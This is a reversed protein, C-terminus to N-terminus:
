EGDFGSKCYTGWPKAAAALLNPDLEGAATTVNAAELTVKRTQDPLTGDAEPLPPVEIVHFWSPLKMPINQCGADGAQPPLNYDTNDLTSWQTGDPAQTKSFPHTFSLM